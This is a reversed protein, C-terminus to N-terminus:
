WIALMVGCLKYFYLYNVFYNIRKFSSSPKCGRAHINPPRCSGIFATNLQFLEFFEYVTYIADEFRPDIRM